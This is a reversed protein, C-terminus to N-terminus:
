QINEELCHDNIFFHNAEFTNKFETKYKKTSFYDMLSSNLPTLQEGSFWPFPEGSEKHMVCGKDFALSIHAMPWKQDLDRIIAQLYGEFVPNVYFFEPSYLAANHYHEPINLIADCELRKAMLVVLEFIQLGLGLGPHNQGPLKPRKKDFKKRPNQLGLWEIRLARIPKQHIQPNSPFDFKIPQIQCIIEGLLHKPDVTDFYFSIGQRYPDRTNLKFVIHNFGRKKLERFIGFKKFVYEIGNLTFFGLFRRNKAGREEGMINLELLDDESFKLDEPAERQLEYDSIYRAISNFKKRYKTGM